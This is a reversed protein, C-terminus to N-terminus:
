RRSKECFVSLSVATPTIASTADKNIVRILTSAVNLLIQRTFVARGFNLRKRTYQVTSVRPARTAVALRASDVRNKASPM